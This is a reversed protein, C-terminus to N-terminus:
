QTSPARGDHNETWAPMVAQFWMFADLASETCSTIMCGRYRSKAFSTASSFNDAGALLPVGIM